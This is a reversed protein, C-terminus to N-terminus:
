AEQSSDSEAPPTSDGQSGEPKRRRRRRRRKKRQNSDLEAPIVHMKRYLGEGESVTNVGEITTVTQHIARRDAPLMPHITIVRGLEQARKGLLGGLVVLDPDLEPDLTPTKKREPEAVSPPKRERRPVSPVEVVIHKRNEPFRNVIKNLLFQFSPIAPPRSRGLVQAVEGSEGRDEIVIVIQREEDRVSVEADNLGMREILGQAVEEARAAKEPAPGVTGNRLSDLSDDILISDMSPTVTQSVPASEDSTRVRIQVPRAGFGLVGSSGEDVVTYDLDEEAVGLAACAKHVAEQM